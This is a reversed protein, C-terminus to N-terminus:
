IDGHIKSKKVNVTPTPEASPVGGNWDIMGSSTGRSLSGEATANFLVPTFMARAAPGAIPPTRIDTAPGADTKKKLATVKRNVINTSHRHFRTGRMLLSGGSCKKAAIDM